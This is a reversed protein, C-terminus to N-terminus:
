TIQGNVLLHFLVAEPQCCAGGCVAFLCPRFLPFVAVTRLPRLLRPRTKMIRRCSPPLHGHRRNVGGGGTRARPCTESSQDGSARRAGPVSHGKRWLSRPIQCDPFQSLNCSVTRAWPWRGACARDNSAHRCSRWEDAVFRGRGGKVPRMAAAALIPTHPAWGPRNSWGRPFIPGQRKAGTRHRPSTEATHLVLLLDVTREMASSSGVGSRGARHRPFAGARYSWVRM